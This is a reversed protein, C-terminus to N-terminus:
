RNYQRVGGRMRGQPAGEGVLPSPFVIAFAQTYQLIAKSPQIFQTSAKLTQDPKSGPPVPQM